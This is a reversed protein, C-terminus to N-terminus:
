DPYVDQQSSSVAQGYVKEARKLNFCVNMINKMTSGGEVPRPHIHRCVNFCYQPIMWMIQNSQLILIVPDRFRHNCNDVVYLEGFSPLIVTWSRAGSPILKAHFQHIHKQELEQPTLPAAQQEDQEQKQLSIENLIIPPGHDTEEELRRISRRHHHSTPHDLPHSNVLISDTLDYSQM